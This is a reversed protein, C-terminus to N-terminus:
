KGAKAKIELAEILQRQVFAMPDNTEEHRALTRRYITLKQNTTLKM